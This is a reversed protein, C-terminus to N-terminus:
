WSYSKDETTWNRTRKEIFTELQSQYKKILEEM